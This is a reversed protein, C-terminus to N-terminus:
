EKKYEVRYNKDLNLWFTRSIGFAMELAKAEKKKIPTAEDLLSCVEAEKMNLQKALKSNDWKKLEMLEYIHHTPSIKKYPKINNVNIM